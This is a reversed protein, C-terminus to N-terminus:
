FKNQAHAPLANYMLNFYDNLNQALEQIEQSKNFTYVGSNETFIEVIKSVCSYTFYFRDIQAGINDKLTFYESSEHSVIKPDLSSSGFTFESTSATIFEEWITSGLPSLFISKLDSTRTAIKTGSGIVITAKSSDIEGFSIENGNLSSQKLFLILTM